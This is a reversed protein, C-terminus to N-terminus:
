PLRSTQSNLLLRLFTDLLRWKGPKQLSASLLRMGEHTGATAEQRHGDGQRVSGSSPLREPESAPRLWANQRMALLPRWGLVAQPTKQGQLHVLSLVLGKDERQTPKKKKLNLEEANGYERLM